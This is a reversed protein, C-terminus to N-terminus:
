SHIMGAEGAEDAWCGSAVAAEERGVARKWGERGVVVVM